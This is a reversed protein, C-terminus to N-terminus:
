EVNGIEFVTVDAQWKVVCNLDDMILKYNSEKNVVIESLWVSNEKQVSM